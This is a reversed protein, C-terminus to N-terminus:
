TVAPGDDMALVDFEDGDATDALDDPSNVTEPQSAALAYVGPVLPNHEYTWVQARTSDYLKFGNPFRSTVTRGAYPGGRCVGTFGAPTAADDDDEDADDATHDVGDSPVLPDVEAAEDAIATDDDTDADPPTVPQDTM